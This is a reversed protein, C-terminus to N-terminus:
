RVFLKQWKRFMTVLVLCGLHSTQLQEAQNTMWSLQYNFAKNASWEIQHSIKISTQYFDCGNQLMTLQLDLCNDVYHM